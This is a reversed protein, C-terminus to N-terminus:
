KKIINIGSWTIGDDNHVQEKLSKKAEFKKAPDIPKANLTNLKNVTFIGEIEFTSHENTKFWYKKTLEASINVQINKPYWKDNLGQYELKKVIIPNDIDLGYLFLLPQVLM